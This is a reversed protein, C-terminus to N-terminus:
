EQITDERKKSLNRRTNRATQARSSVMPKPPGTDKRIRIHRNSNTMLVKPKEPAAQTEKPNSRSASPQRSTNEITVAKKSKSRPRSPVPGIKNASNPKLAEQHGRSASRSSRPVRPRAKRPSPDKAPPPPPPYPQELEDMFPVASIAASVVMGM